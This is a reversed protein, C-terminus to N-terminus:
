GRRLHWAARLALLWYRHALALWLRPIPPSHLQMGVQLTPEVCYEYVGPVHRHVSYTKVWHSSRSDTPAGRGAAGMTTGCDHVGLLSPHLNSDAVFHTQQLHSSTRTNITRRPACPKENPELM